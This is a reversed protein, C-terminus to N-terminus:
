FPAKAKYHEKVSIYRNEQIIDSYSKDVSARGGSFMVEIMHGSHRM